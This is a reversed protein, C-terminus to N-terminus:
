PDEPSRVGPFAAARERFRERLDHSMLRDGAELGRLIHPLTRSHAFIRHDPPLALVLALVVAGVLLVGKAAGLVGGALRDACGMEAAKVFKGAVWALGWGVLLAALLVSCWAIAPRMTEPGFPVYEALAEHYRAATMAGAIVALLILVQRVAGRWFGLLTFLITVGVVTYDFGTM